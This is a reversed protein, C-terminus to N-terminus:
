YPMKIFTFALKVDFRFNIIRLTKVQLDDDSCTKESLLESISICRLFYLDHVNFETFVNSETSLQHTEHKCYLCELVHRM